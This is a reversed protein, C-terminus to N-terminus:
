NVRPKERGDIRCGEFWCEFAVPDILLQGRVRCFVGAAGNGPVWERSANFHPQTERELQHLARESLFAPYASDFEEFTKWDQPRIARARNM